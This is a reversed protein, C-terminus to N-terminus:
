FVLRLAFQIDRPSGSTSTIQGFSPDGVTNNPLSFNTHNTFNFFEGRFETRLRENIKFNKYTSFDWTFLSPGVLGNRGENGFKGPNPYGFAAPNVWCLLSQHGVPCGEAAQQSQGYSFDYPKGILDPIATGSYDYIDSNSPDNYTVATFHFGSQYQVIGGVQWGGLVQNLGNNWKRGIIHQKGIPLDYLYNV